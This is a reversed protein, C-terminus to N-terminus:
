KVEECKGFIFTMEPHNKAKVLDKVAAVEKECAAKSSFIEVAPHPNGSLLLVIIGLWM